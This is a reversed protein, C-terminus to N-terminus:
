FSEGFVKAILEVPLPAGYFKLMGICEEYARKAKNFFASINKRENPFKKSLFKVFGELSQPVDIKEGNFIHMVTNRTFLDEMKLGSNTLSSALQIRKWCFM